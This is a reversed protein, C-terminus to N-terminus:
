HVAKHCRRCLTVLNEPAHNDKSHDIHHTDLTSTSGCNVCRHNDRARIEKKHRRGWGPAYPTEQGKAQYNPNQDGSLSEAIRDRWERDSAMQRGRERADQRMKPTWAQQIKEAVGPLSGGTPYNKPQGQLRQSMMQRHEPTRQYTPRNARAVKACPPCRLVKRPVASECDICRRTNNVSRPM